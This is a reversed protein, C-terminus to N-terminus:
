EAIFSAARLAAKESLERRQETESVMSTQDFVLLTYLVTKGALTKNLLSETTVSGTVCLSRLERSNFESLNVKRATTAIEGECGASLFAFDQADTDKLDSIGDASVAVVGGLLGFSESTWAVADAKFLASTEEPTMYAFDTIGLDAIMGTAVQFLLTKDVNGGSNEAITPNAQYELFRLAQELTANLARYTGTLDYQGRGVASEIVLMRGKQLATMAEDFDPLVLTAFDTDLAIARGYFPRRRDVYLAVPIEQGEKLGLGPSVVGVTVTANGNVSLLLTDGSVYEASVVCHSFSGTEDSTYCAGNWNGVKIDSQPIYEANAVSAFFVITTALWRM